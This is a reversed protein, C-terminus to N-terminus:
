FGKEILFKKFFAKKMLTKIPPAIKVLMSGIPNKLYEQFILDM